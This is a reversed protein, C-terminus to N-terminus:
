HGTVQPRVNMEEWSIRRVAGNIICIQIQECSIFFKLKKSTCMIYYTQIKKILALTRHRFSHYLGKVHYM